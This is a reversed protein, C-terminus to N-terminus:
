FATFKVKPSTVASLLIREYTSALDPEKMKEWYTDRSGVAAEEGSDVTQVGEHWWDLCTLIKLGDKSDPTMYQLEPIALRLGSHSM